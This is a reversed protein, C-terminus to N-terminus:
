PIALAADLTDLSRKVAKLAPESAPDGETRLREFVAALKARAALMKSDASPRGESNEGYAVTSAARPDTRGTRLLQIANAVQLEALARRGQFAHDIGNLTLRATQLEAILAPAAKPAVFSLGDRVKAEERPTPDRPVLKAELAKKQEEDGWRSPFEPDFGWRKKKPVRPDAVGSKDVNGLSYDHVNGKPFFKVNGKPAARVNGRFARDVNGGPVGGIDGRPLAGVNGRPLAGVGGGPVGIMGRPASGINGSPPAGVNGTPPSQPASLFVASAAILFAM